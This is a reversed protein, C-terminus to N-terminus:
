DANDQDKFHPIRFKSGDARKLNWLIKKTETQEMSAGLASLIEFARQRVLSRMKEIAPSPAAFRRVLSLFKYVEEAEGEFSRSVKQFILELERDSMAEFTKM